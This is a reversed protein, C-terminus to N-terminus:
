PMEVYLFGVRGVAWHLGARQADNTSDYTGLLQFPSDDGGISASLEIKGNGVPTLRICDSGEPATHGPALKRVEM